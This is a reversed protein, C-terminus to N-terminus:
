KGHCYKYKKGSGCPCLQNRGVKPINRKQAIEVFDIKEISPIRFTFTTEGNTNTIVFDGKIILDMGILVDCDGSIDGETARISSFCIKNPLFISLLFVDANIKGAATSVETMGIPKLDCQEIVNKTIVTNTAGTDWIANFKKNKIKEIDIREGTTEFPEGISVETKLVRAIGNHRLTFAQYKINM